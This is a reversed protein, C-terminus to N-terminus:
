FNEPCGYIPRMARNDKGYSLKRAILTRFKYHNVFKNVTYDDKL